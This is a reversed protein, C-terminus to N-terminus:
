SVVRLFDLARVRAYISWKHKICFYGFGEGIVHHISLLPVTLLKAHRRVIRGYEKLLPIVAKLIETAAVLSNEVATNEVQASGKRVVSPLGDRRADVCDALCDVRVFSSIDLLGIVHHGLPAPTAIAVRVLLTRTRTPRGVVWPTRAEVDAVVPELIGVAAHSVVALVELSTIAKV